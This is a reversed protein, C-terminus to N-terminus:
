FLPSDVHSNKWVSFLGSPPSPPVRSIWPWIGTSILTEQSFLLVTHTPFFLHTNGAWCDLTIGTSSCWQLTVPRIQFAPFDMSLITAEEHQLEPVPLLQLAKGELLSPSVASPSFAQPFARTTEEQSFVTRCNKLFLFLFFYFLRRCHWM